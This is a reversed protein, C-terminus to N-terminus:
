KTLKREKTVVKEAQIIYGDKILDHATYVKLNVKDGVKYGNFEKKVEFM